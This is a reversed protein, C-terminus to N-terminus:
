YEEENDDAPTAYVSLARANYGPLCQRRLLHHGFRCDLCRNRDCYERRLHIMAQSRAADNAKLGADRWGTVISNKEPALGELLRNAQEAIEPNERLAAYAYYFPAAVNILLTSVSSYSMRVPAPSAPTGFTYHNEWYGEIPWDFIDRLLDEDGRADLMAACLSDGRTNLSAALVAIRRFPQNQPRTRAYKWMGPPIPRLSYKHSLFTYERCLMQYYDDYPWANRDLMAGQGFLIAEIQQRNDAHRRLFALPTNRALMEFPDGNLGFGLARALTIFLTQHWDSGTDHWTAIIRQAKHHLREVTLTEMWDTVILEPLSPLAPACRVAKIEDTLRALTMFFEQPLIVEAQPLVRGDPLTIETDSVGVVHLMVSDYAHDHDHGHRHWDSARLHIEVNGAWVQGDVRLKANFFDPGADTNLCGPDIVEATRGDTLSVKPGFM